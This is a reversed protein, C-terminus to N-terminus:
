DNIRIFRYSKSYTAKTINITYIGNALDSVDIPNTNKDILIQKVEIGEVNYIRAIANYLVIDFLINLENIVPNPYISFSYVPSTENVGVSLGIMNSTDRCGMNDTVVVFYLSNFPPTYIQSNAGVIPAGNMYWQYSNYSGTQFSSGIQVVVPVPLPNVNIIINQSTDVGCKGNIICSYTGTYSTDVHNLQLTPTTDNMMVNDKYWQYHLSTGITNVYLLLSDEACISASVSQNIVDPHLCQAYRVLFANWNSAGFVYDNASIYLIGKFGGGLYYSDQAFLHFGKYYIGSTANFGNAYKYNGLSDYTAIFASASVNVPGPNIDASGYADGMLYINGWNDVDIKLPQVTGTNNGISFCWLFTGTLSYRAVFIDDYSSNNLYHIGIGPDFDINGYFRGSVALQHNQNISIMVSSISPGGSAGGGISFASVYNGTTINYRAILADGIGQGTFSAVAASPDADITGRYIMGVVINGYGDLALSFGEENFSPEDISFAWVYNGSSDYKALYMGGSATAYLKHEAASPDFDSSDTIRGTIYVNGDNDTIMKNMNETSLSSGLRFAWKFLGNTNYKAIYLDRGAGAANLLFSSATPDADMQNIFDGAVYINELADTAIEKVMSQDASYLSFGWHYNHLTDYKAIFANHHTNNVSSVNAIVGSPDLDITGAVAGGTYIHGSYDTTISIVENVYSPSNVSGGAAIGWQPIATGQACLAVSYFCILLLIVKKM